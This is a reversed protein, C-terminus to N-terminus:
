QIIKTCIHQKCSIDGAVDVQVINKEIEIKKM